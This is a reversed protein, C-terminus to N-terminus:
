VVLRADRAAAAAHRTLSPYTRRHARRARRPDAGHRPLRVRRPAGTRGGDVACRRGGANGAVTRLVAERPDLARDTPPAPAARRAPPGRVRRTQRPLRTRARPTDPGRRRDPAHPDPARRRAASPAG